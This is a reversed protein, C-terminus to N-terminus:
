MAYFDEPITETPRWDLEGSEAGKYRLFTASMTEEDIAPKHSTSLDVWLNVTAPDLQGAKALGVILVLLHKCLAGRLGGCPRLNQTCCGFAGDANLRCSYVLDGSSQSKVIGVIGSDAVEAFLQFREAKLMSGAKDMRATEVKAGLDKLFTEFDLSGVKAAVIPKKVIHPAAGTGKWVLSAPLQFGEPWITKEDFQAKDFVADTLTADTFDTSQLKAGAFNAGTLNAKQFNSGSLTANNFKSQQLNAQSFNTQKCITFCFDSEALSAKSFNTGKFDCQQFFEIKDLKTNSLDVGRLDIDRRARYDLKEWAKQGKSRLTKVMEDRQALAGSKQQALKAQLEAPTVGEIGFTEAWAAMALETLAQGRVTKGGSAKISDFRLTGNLWRESLKLVAESLKKADPHDRWLKGECYYNSHLNFYNGYIGLTLDVYEEKSLDVTASTQFNSSGKAAQELELLKPGAKRPPPITLNKAKSLDVNDFKTGFLIAGQFDAGDIKAGSLDANSLTAGTFNINRLDLGALSAERLDAQSFNAQALKSDVFKTGKGNCRNLNAKNLDCREFVTNVAMANTFNAGTFNCNKFTGRYCSAWSFNATTFDCDEILSAPKNPSSHHTAPSYFLVAQQLEANRFKCNRTEEFRSHAASADSLDVDQLKGFQTHEAHAKKLDSGTLDAAQLQAYDLTTGSLKSNTLDITTKTEQCVQGLNTWYHDKDERKKSLQQLLEDRNPLLFAPFDALGLVQVAPLRKQIKAVDGPPNGNRGEGVFLYDIQSADAKVITGGQALVLPQYKHLEYNSYGFKGVFAVTLGHLKGQSASGKKTAAKTAAAKVPAAKKPAAKASAAKHPAAKKAAVKSAAAKSQKAM